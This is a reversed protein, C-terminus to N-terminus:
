GTKQALSATQPLHSIAQRLSWGGKEPLENAKYEPAGALLSAVKDPTLHLHELAAFEEFKM